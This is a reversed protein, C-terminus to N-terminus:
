CDYPPPTPFVVLGGASPLHPSPLVTAHLTSVIVRVPLVPITHSLLGYNVDAQSPTWNKATRASPQASPPLSEYVFQGHSSTRALPAQFQGTTDTVILSQQVTLHRDSATETSLPFWESVPQSSPASCFIGVTFLAVGLMFSILARIKRISHMKNNM